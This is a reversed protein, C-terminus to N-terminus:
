AMFARGPGSGVGMYAGSSEKRVANRSYIPSVATSKRLLKMSYSSVRASKVLSTM